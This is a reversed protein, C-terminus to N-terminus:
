CADHRQSLAMSPHGALGLYGAGVIKVITFATASAAIVASIGIVAALIHVVYGLEVGAVTSLGARRGSSLTTTLIFAVSPGPALVLPLCAAMFLLFTSTQM